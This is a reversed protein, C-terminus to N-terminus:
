VWEFDFALYKDMKSVNPLLAPKAITGNNCWDQLEKPLKAQKQSSLSCIDGTDGSRRDSAIQARNEGNKEPSICPSIHNVNFSMDGPNDRAIQARNEPKLRYPQEPSIHEVKEYNQKRIIERQYLINNRAAIIGNNNNTIFKRITWQRDSKDLSNKEVIIGISRLDAKILNIRRSLSNPAQPWMKGNSTNIKLNDQAIKTLLDFLETITGNWFALIKSDIFIEVAKGVVDNEVVERTQLDINRFYAEIFKGPEYGMCRSIIEGVEAFDALRPYEKLRLGEPNDKQFQLVKSLIGFIYGLLEPRIEYFKKWIKKLLRKKDKLIPVHEIILGRDVLDSKTAGLNIGNIGICHLFNYIVDDDNTYLERKSFGSGTVARCLIDSTSEFIKSINDFYCVYNHALKQVMSEINRSFALTKILSPDVLMKILEQLTSKATGKEGYLMLAPHQIEPYFLVIIYVKFLLKNGASDKVNTLDMFKDFIDHPYEKSPYVQPKQNSYRRFVVPAYEINWGRSATIRVVQWDENTL